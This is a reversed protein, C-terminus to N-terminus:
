YNIKSKSCKELIFEAASSVTGSPIMEIDGGMHRFWTLQRKAYHRSGLKINYVTDALEEEGSFYKGFEKYGIAQFCTSGIAKENKYLSRAEEELGQEMMIDVRRNIRDYLIQRDIDPMFARFEFSPGELKSKRNKESFKVGSARKVALARVVRRVNNPHILLAAEPDEKELISYLKDKGEKDLISYYYEEADRVEGDDEEGYNIGFLLASIYQGTGGCIVPLKGRSLIDSISDIARGIYDFVSFDDGPEIIDTMHHPIEALEEASDKATGIDLGRYIQMSDASVLEGGGLRCVEMAIASKGSATPGTVIPLYAYKGLYPGSDKM